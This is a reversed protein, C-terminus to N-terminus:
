SEGSFNFNTPQTGKLSLMILYEMKEFKLFKDYHISFFYKNEM